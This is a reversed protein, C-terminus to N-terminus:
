QPKKAQKHVKRRWSLALLSQTRSMDPDEM